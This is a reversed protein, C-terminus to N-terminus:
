LSYLGYRCRQDQCGLDVRAARVNRTMRLIFNAEQLTANASKARMCPERVRHQLYPDTVIVVERWTAWRCARKGWKEYLFIGLNGYVTYGSVVCYIILHYVTMARHYCAHYSYWIRVKFVETYLVFFERTWSWTIAHCM